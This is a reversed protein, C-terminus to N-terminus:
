RPSWACFSGECVVIPPETPVEVFALARPDDTQQQTTTPAGEHPDGNPFGEGGTTERWVRTEPFWQIEIEETVFGGGAGGNEHGGAIERRVPYAVKTETPNWM